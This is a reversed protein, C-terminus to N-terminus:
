PWHQHDNSCHHQFTKLKVEEEFEDEVTAYSGTQRRTPRRSRKRPAPEEEQGEEGASLVTNLVTTGYRGGGQGTDVGKEPRCAASFTTIGAATWHPHDLECVLIQSCALRKIPSCPLALSAVLKSILCRM